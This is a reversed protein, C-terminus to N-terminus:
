TAPVMACVGADGYELSPGKVVGHRRRTGNSVFLTFHIATHSPPTDLGYPPPPRGGPVSYHVDRALSLLNAQKRSVLASGARSDFRLRTDSRTALCKITTADDDTAHADGAWTAPRKAHFAPIVALKVKPVPKAVSAKLQVRLKHRPATRHVLPSVRLVRLCFGCWLRSSLCPGQHENAV